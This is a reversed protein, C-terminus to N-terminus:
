GNASQAREVRKRGLERSLNDLTTSTGAAVGLKLLMEFHEASACQITVKMLTGRAHSAFTVTGHAGLARFDLRRPRDIVDYTGEFPPAHGATVFRFPGQPRLDISCAVLPAGTPDWWKTIEAAQTWADFAEEATAELVREFHVTNHERDITDTM